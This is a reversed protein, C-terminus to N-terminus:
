WDRERTRYRCAHRMWKHAPRGEKSGAPGQPIIACRTVVVAIVRPGTRGSERGIGVQATGVVVDDFKVSASTFNQQSPWRKHGKENLIRLM